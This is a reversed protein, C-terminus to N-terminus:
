KSSIYEEFTGDDNLIIIKKITKKETKSNSIQVENQKKKELSTSSHKLEKKQSFLNLNKSEDTTKDKQMPFSGKGYVLWNLEVEKFNDIVKIVFDLSAKNRGSLLHSISSRPVNIKDAFSSASLDYYKIILKLREIM